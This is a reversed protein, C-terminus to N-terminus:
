KKVHVLYYALQGATKGKVAEWGKPLNPLTTQKEIEIYIAAQDSLCNAKDLLQCFPEVLQKNFPPDLFVIDFLQPPTSGETAQLSSGEAAQLSSGKAAQQSSGEAAQPLACLSNLYSSADMQLIQANDAGLLELNRRIMRVAQPNKDIMVVDGAYRSLAELGLAGSGSFLDLCRAGAIKNQLWNFLTERVRDMTPRLGDGDAFSLKRGRWQGAIIRLQNAKAKKV